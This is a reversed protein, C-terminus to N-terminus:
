IVPFNGYIISRALEIPAARVFPCCNRPYFTTMEDKTKKILANDRNLSLSVYKIHQRYKGM